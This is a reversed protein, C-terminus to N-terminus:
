NKLVTKGKEKTLLPAIVEYLKDAALIHVYENPHSDYPGVILDRSRKGQLYHLMDVVTAGNNTFITDIRKHIAIANKPYDPFFYFFPLVLVVTKIKKERLTKSFNNIRQKHRSFVAQNDYQKLDANRIKLFTNSYKASLRWHIYNFFYSNKDLFTIIGGDEKQADQLVKRGTSQEGEQVDNLFYEWVLINFGLHKVRQYEQIEQMTDYGSVGFNYVEVTYGRARLKKELINSFRNQPDKIGFGFANSDGMVGIRVTDNKKPYTFDRDRYQYNNFVVHRKNWKQSVLLFGISDSQDFIYRFYAEFSTFIYIFSIFICLLTFLLKKKGPTSTLRVVFLTAFVGLLTIITVLLLYQWFDSLFYSLHGWIKELM